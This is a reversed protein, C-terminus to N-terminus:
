KNERWGCLECQIVFTKLNIAILSILWGLSLSLFVTYDATLILVYLSVFIIANAVLQFLKFRKKAGPISKTRLALESCKPCCLNM